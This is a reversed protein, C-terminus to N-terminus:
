KTLHDPNGTVRITNDSTLKLAGTITTKGPALEFRLGGASLTLKDKAELHIVEGHLEIKIASTLAADTGVNIKTTKASNSLSGSRLEAAM